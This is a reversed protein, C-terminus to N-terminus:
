AAREAAESVRVVLCNEASDWASPTGLQDCLWRMKGAIRRAEAPDARRASFDSILTPYLFIDRVAGDQFNLMFAFSQDNSEIEDVAYDDVFDGTSYLIPRGHRLEIGRFIHASHGYVVDAGADV